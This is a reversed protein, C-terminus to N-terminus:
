LSIASARPMERPATLSLTKRPMRRRLFYKFCCPILGHGFVVAAVAVVSDFAQQLLRKGWDASVRSRSKLAVQPGRHLTAEFLTRDCEWPKIPSQQGGHNRPKCEKWFRYEYQEIVQSQLVDHVCM